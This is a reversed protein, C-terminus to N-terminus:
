AETESLNPDVIHIGIEKNLSMKYGMYVNKELSFRLEAALAVFM